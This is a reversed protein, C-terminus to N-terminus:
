VRLYYFRAIIVFALVVGLVAVVVSLRRRVTVFRPQGGALAALVEHAVMLMLLPVVVLIGFAANSVLMRM